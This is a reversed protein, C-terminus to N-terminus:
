YDIPLLLLTLLKIKLFVFYLVFPLSSFVSFPAFNMWFRIGIIYLLENNPFMELDSVLWFNIM